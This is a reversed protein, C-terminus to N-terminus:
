TKSTDIQVVGAGRQWDLVHGAARAQDDPTVCFAVGDVTFIDQDRMYNRSFANIGWHELAVGNTHSTHWCLNPVFDPHGPLCQKAADRLIDFLADTLTAGFSLTHM